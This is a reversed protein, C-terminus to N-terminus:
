LIELPHNKGKGALDTAGGNSFWQKEERFGITKTELVLPKANWSHRKQLGFIGKQTSLFPM